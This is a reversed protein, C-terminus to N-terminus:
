QFLRVGIPKDSLNDPTVDKKVSPGPNPIPEVPKDDGCYLWCAGAGIAILLVPFQWGKDKKITVNTIATQSDGEHHRESAKAPSVALIAIVGCLFVGITIIWSMLTRM